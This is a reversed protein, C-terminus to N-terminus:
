MSGLDDIDAMGAMMDKAINKDRASAGGNIHFELIEINAKQEDSSLGGDNRKVTDLMSKLQIKTKSELVEASYIRM